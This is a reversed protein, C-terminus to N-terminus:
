VSHAHGAPDPCDAYEDAGRMLGCHHYHARNRESWKSISRTNLGLGFQRALAAFSHDPFGPRYSTLIDHKQTPSLQKM